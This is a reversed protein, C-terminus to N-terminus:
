AIAVSLATTTGTIPTNLVLWFGNCAVVPICCLGANQLTLVDYSSGANGLGVSSPTFQVTSASKGNGVIILLCGDMDATPQAVTMTLTSTGNIVAIADTGPAPLAIAGSASYSTISRNRGALPYAVAVAPQPNAFDAGTGVTANAGSVHAAANTGNLGRGDLPIITGTTYTKGVRVFESDIQVYSGAAFGTASSVTLQRDTLSFAAALTTTTLAM